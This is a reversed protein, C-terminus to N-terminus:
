AQWRQTWQASKLRGLCITNVLINDAAYEHALAKTLLFAIGDRTRDRRQRRHDGGGQGAIGPGHSARLWGWPWDTWPLRTM